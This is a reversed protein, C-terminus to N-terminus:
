IRFQRRRMSALTALAGGLLWVAGPLPVASTPTFTAFYGSFGQIILTDPMYWENPINNGAQGQWENLQDDYWTSQAFSSCLIPDACATDYLSDGPYTEFSRIYTSAWPVMIWFDSLNRFPHSGDAVGTIGSSQLISSIADAMDQARMSRVNPNELVGSGQLLFEPFAGEAYLDEYTGERFTVQYTQLPACNISVSNTLCDSGYVFDQIGTAL